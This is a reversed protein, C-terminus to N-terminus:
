SGPISKSNSSQRCGLCSISCLCIRIVHEDIGYEEQLNATAFKAVAGTPTSKSAQGGTNSYVETDLVLINVNQGQALVHDIGGYGIDNAWGDGGIIWVSKDTFYDELEKIKKITDCGCEKAYKEIVVKAASQAKVAEETKSNDWHSMAEKLVAKLDAPADEKSLVKEVNEKM